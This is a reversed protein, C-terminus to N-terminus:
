IDERPDEMSPFAEQPMQLSGENQEAGIEAYDVRCARQIAGNDLGQQPADDRHEREVIENGSSSPPWHTGSSALCDRSPLFPRTLPKLGPFMFNVM